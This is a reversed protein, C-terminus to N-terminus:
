KGLKLCTATSERSLQKNMYRYFTTRSVRLTRCIEAVSNSKDKHLAKAM